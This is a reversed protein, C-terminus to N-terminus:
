PLPYFAWSEYLGKEFANCEVCVVGDVFSVERPTRCIKHVGFVSSGLITRLTEGNAM